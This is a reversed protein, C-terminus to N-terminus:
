SVPSRNCCALLPAMRASTRPSHAAARGCAGTAPRLAALRWDPRPAPRPAHARPRARRSACAGIAPSVLMKAVVIGLNTWMNIQSWSPGKSLTAGLLMLNIPVAAGGITRVGRFLFGLPASETPVLLARLSPSLGVVIGCAVATVAPKFVQKVVRKLRRAALALTRVGLALV